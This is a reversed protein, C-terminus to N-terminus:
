RVVEHANLCTLLCSCIYFIFDAILFMVTVFAYSQVLCMVAWCCTFVVPFDRLEKVGM